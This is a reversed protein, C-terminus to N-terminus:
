DRLQFFINKMHFVNDTNIGELLVNQIRANIHQGFYLLSLQCKAVYIYRCFMATRVMDKHLKSQIKMFFFCKM